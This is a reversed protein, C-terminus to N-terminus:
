AVEHWCEPKKYKDKIGVQSGHRRWTAVCELTPADPTGRWVGVTVSDPTFLQRNLIADGAAQAASLSTFVGEVQSGEYDVDSTLVYVLM